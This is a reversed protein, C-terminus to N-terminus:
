PSVRALWSAHAPLTIQLAPQDGLDKGAWLDRVKVSRTPVGVADWDLQVKREVDSLNFVAVYRESSGPIEATWALVEDALYSQHNKASNQNVALVEANTLLSLTWADCSPLDGGFMLPSRIICWATMLTRQEDRTFNTWREDGVEGRIGIRGLPLMDADPWGGPLIEKEWNHAREFQRKLAAWDDWFDNSIRWLNAYERLHRAQELPAPGPSLSLIIPRGTKRLAQSLAAIEAAHYPYSPDHSQAIDDAKVYDVGWSAYLAAISDYYAQAGPKNHDIGYMDTQNQWTCLHVKDAIEAAHVASGLVPLNQEVAWRPIGRMIHIGFKLGLRHVYEALAAFGVGNAASPFRATDPILRGYEDLTVNHPDPIYGHTKTRPAYWQIDVVVTDWGYKLLHLAMFDANAKVEDERVSPGYADWSNWGMPPTLALKISSATQM